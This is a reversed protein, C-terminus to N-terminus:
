WTGCIIMMDLEVLVYGPFSNVTKEERHGGKVVVEVHTPVMVQGIKDALTADTLKIQELIAQVKEEAGAATQVSYWKKM